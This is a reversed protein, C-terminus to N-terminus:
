WQPLGMYYRADAYANVMAAEATKRYQPLILGDQLRKFIRAGEQQCAAAAKADFQNIKM